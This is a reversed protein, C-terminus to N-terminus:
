PKTGTSLSSAPRDKLDTPGVGLLTALKRRGATASALFSAIM